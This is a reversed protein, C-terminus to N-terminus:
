FITLVLHRFNWWGVLTLTPHLSFNKVSLTTDNIFQNPTPPRKSPHTYRSLSHFHTSSFWQMTAGFLGVHPLWRPWSEHRGGPPRKELPFIVVGRLSKKTERKRKEVWTRSPNKKTSTGHRLRVNWTDKETTWSKVSVATAFPLETRRPSRHCFM